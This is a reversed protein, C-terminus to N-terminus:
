KGTTLFRVARDFQPDKGPVDQSVTSVSTSTAAAVIDPTIGKEMIWHGAPTVWRAVTVKLSGGGLDLLTQVSGKGFSQAGILTAAHNDQLAGALIESASASGGDILVAVKTGAPVGGSGTSTHVDNPQKGAFDETVITAGKPLFHSAIAVAADLYGGPNGRLDIVLKKSGSAAFRELAANFLDASNATFEYLAIHYVGSTPDLGDDTEPVQITARTIKVDFPAGGSRVILLDVVTGAKGRIAAVAQDISMSETSKGDIAVIQDGAKVGAAFAPTGKLPAIVVLAGNKEDLELGVGAFSGSISQNFAKAEKPPFFLTYPDGYSAALGQIAGYIKQQDTPITTSAHTNVYETNLANWAEWFDTLNANPDPTADLNDGTFPLHSVVAATAGTNGGLLLGAAFAVGAVLAFAMPRKVGGAFQPMRM